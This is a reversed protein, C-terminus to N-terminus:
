GLKKVKAQSIEAKLSLGLSEIYLIVKDKQTKIVKGEQGKMGGHQIQVKDGKEIAEVSVEEYEGLLAQIAEIESPRIKADAGLHRVFNVTGPTQLISLREEEGKFRVFVYSPFVAVTVKKKRDSWQRLVTQTPCYVEIHQEALRDAVKKEMRSKTYIAFWHEM